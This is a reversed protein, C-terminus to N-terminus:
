FLYTYRVNISAPAFATTRPDPSGQKESLDPLAMRVFSIPVSVQLLHRKYNCYVGPEVAMFFGPQRYGRSGGIFDKQPSGEWRYALQWLLSKKFPTKAKPFFPVILGTRVAYVDPVTNVNANNTLVAPNLFFEPNGSTAVQSPIKNTDRAAIIYNGQAFVTSGKVPFKVSRYGLAELVVDVGGDGPMITLPVPQKRLHQGTFDSYTDSARFNGTPLKLGAGFLINGRPSENPKWLWTRGMISMDGVSSANIIQRAEFPSGNGPQLFTARNINLPVSAALNFRPTVQYTGTLDLTDWARTPKERVNLFNYPRAYFYYTDARAGRWGLSLTFQGPKIQSDSGAAGPVVLGRVCGQARAADAHGLAIFLTLALITRRLKSIM